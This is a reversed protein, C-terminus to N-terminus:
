GAVWATGNDFVPCKVTGGGILAGLFTPATADTVYARRGATGAAPLTAVTYGGTSSTGTIRASGIVTLNDTASSINSANGGAVLYGDAGAYIKSTGSTNYMNLTATVVSGSRLDLCGAHAANNGTMYLRALASTATSIVSGLICVGLAGSYAAAGSTPSVSLGADGYVTVKANSSAGYGVGVNQASDINMAFTNSTNFTMTSAGTQNLLFDGTGTNILQFAGNTGSGRIIRAEYDTAGSAVSHLDITIAQDISALSGVEYGGRSSINGANDIIMQDVPSAGVTNTGFRLYHGNVGNTATAQIYAYRSTVSSAAMRLEVGSGTVNPAPNILSLATSLAGSNLKSSELQQAPSSTGIGLRKNTNDWFLSSSETPTTTGQGFPIYGTTYTFAPAKGNFTSWDTSSLYGNASASAVPIAITPTTGGTSTIPATASVSTVKNNFTSWDTSSLAGRNTASATPVNLTIVPTTTSNAVTSSLDTGTTGLTLAAVSTVTGGTGTANITIAASGNYTTGSSFSVGTGATLNFLNGGLAVGSITSNTLQSNGIGSLTGGLTLSGSSTVTGTLTIGNVSGTGSVSTVYSLAPIDAAVIARFTPVGASGNPAALFYNATKSAYPNQTDGYGSALSIDPTAGGSSVVPSTGTVSTVTGGSGTASLTGGVFSVGTGITVNSFGGAGNGYLISTGSTAPAYDTGSTAASIATGNGKLIGTVSTALTLSPTAGGSSIGTFGNSSAISISTVYTGAPQKNNFTNWDTSSLYGDTSTTAQSISIVPTTTGTAVSIPATGSVSTVTGGTGTASITISGAGNTITVGSGATLTAKTLTNGTTNGILLQGNTFSSQGTGGNSVPLVGTVHTTLDIKGWSPAVGVGGSILANGTAVDSLKSLTASDSAYLLDGTTYSSQGTGGYIAAITNANWTGATLVGVGTIGTYSGSIRAPDITGSIIQSANIGISVNTAATIAGYQNVTFQGVSSASGYTGPTVGSAGIALNIIGPAYTIAIGSGTLIAPEFTNNATGIILQHEGISTLGTGGKSVPIAGSPDGTFGYINWFFRYWETTMVTDGDYILPVKASPLLTIDLM